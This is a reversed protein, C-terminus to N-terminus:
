VNLVDCWSHLGQESVELNPEWYVWFIVIFQVGSMEFNVLHLPSLSGCVAM